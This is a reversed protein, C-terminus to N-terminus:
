NSFEVLKRYQIWGKFNASWRNGKKDRHTEGQAWDEQAKMPFAVHEFPSFHGNKLLKAYLRKGREPDIELKNGYSVAACHAIDQQINDEQPGEKGQSFPLHVGNEKLEVPVSEEYLAMMQSAILKIEPCAGAGNLTVGTKQRIEETKAQLSPALKDYPCRLMFFNDWETATWVKTQMAFPTLYRNIHQRHIIGAYKSVVSCSVESIKGLDYIFRAAVGDAVLDLGGMGSVEQYLEEPVYIEKIYDEYKMARSSSSNTSIMRHKEIEADIFVPTKTIFTTIRTDNYISDALIRAEINM